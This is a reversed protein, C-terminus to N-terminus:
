GRHEAQAGGRCAHFQRESPQADPFPVFDHHGDIGIAGRGVHHQVAAGCRDHDVHEAGVAGEVGFFHGGGDGRGYWLGDHRDVQAAHRGIVPLQPVQDAIGRHFLHELGPRWLLFLQAPDGEDGVGGVGDARMVASFRGGGPAVGAHEREVCHFVQGGRFAAGNAQIEGFGEVIGGNILGEVAPAEM